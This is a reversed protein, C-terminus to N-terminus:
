PLLAHTERYLPVTYTVCGGHFPGHMLLGMGYRLCIVVHRSFCDKTPPRRRLKKIAMGSTAYIPSAGLKLKSRRYAYSKTINLGIRYVVVFVNRRTKRVYSRKYRSPSPPTYGFCSLSSATASSTWSCTRRGAWRTPKAWTSHISVVVFFLFCFFFVPFFFFFFLTPFMCLCLYFLPILFFLLVCLFSVFSFFLYDCNVYFWCLLDCFFGSFFM